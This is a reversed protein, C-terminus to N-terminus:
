VVQARARIEASLVRWDQVSWAGRARALLEDLRGLILESWSEYSCSSARLKAVEVFGSQTIQSERKQLSPELLQVMHVVGFHVRGVENSDDNILGVGTEKFPSDLRVEELVERWMADVYGVDDASFLWRDDVEIHGGIGISYLARLRDEGGLKGRCYRFVSDGSVFVVYPILQKMSGDAEADCRRVYRCNRRDTVLPLIRQVETSIGQFRGVAELISAPFCLISETSKQSM